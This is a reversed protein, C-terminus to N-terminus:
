YFTPNKLLKNALYKYCNWNKGPTQLISPYTNTVTNLFMHKANDWKYYCLEDTGLVTVRHKNPHSANSFLEHKHDLFLIDPNEYYIKHLLAQDDEGPQINFMVMLNLLQSATGFLLGFNIYYFRSTIKKSLSNQKQQEMYLKVFDVNGNVNKARYVSSLDGTCCGEETGVIIKNKNKSRLELAKSIFTNYDQNILVDRGDCLLIYTEGSITKLYNIYAITRGYWGNWKEGHGVIKYNYNLNRFQMILNNTQPDNGNEYSLAVFNSFSPGFPSKNHYWIFIIAILIFIIIIKKKM